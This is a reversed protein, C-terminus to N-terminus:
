KKKIVLLKKTEFFPESFFRSLELSQIRLKTAESFEKMEQTLDGGKLLLYYGNKLLLKHTLKYFPLLRTVARATIIDCPMTLKEVRGHVCQVNDLKLEQAISQTTAIKKQISDVLVFRSQPFMIALPIGPLGGGTGVDLVTFGPKIKQSKAIALAHLIHHVELSDTDKRSVLNVQKNAEILLNKFLVLAELQSDSLSFYPQLLSKM